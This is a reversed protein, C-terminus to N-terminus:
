ALINLPKRASKLTVVVEEIQLSNDNAQVPVSTIGAIAIDYGTINRTEKNEDQERCYIRRNNNPSLHHSVVREASHDNVSAVLYSSIENNSISTLATQLSHVLFEIVGSFKQCSYKKFAFLILEFIQDKAAAINIVM